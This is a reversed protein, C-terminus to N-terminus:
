TNGRRTGPDFDASGRFSARYQPTVLCLVPLAIVLPAMAVKALRSIAPPLPVIERGRDGSPLEVRETERTQVVIKEMFDCVNKGSYGLMIAGNLIPM